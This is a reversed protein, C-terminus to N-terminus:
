KLKPEKRAQTQHYVRRVGGVLTQMILVILLSFPSLFYHSIGSASGVMNTIWKRVHNGTDEFEWGVEPRMLNKLASHVETSLVQRVSHKGQEGGRDFV